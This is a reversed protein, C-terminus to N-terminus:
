EKSLSSIPHHLPEIDSVRRYRAEALGYIGFIILGVAALGLILGGHPRDRLTKLTTDLGRAKAPDHTWAASIVLLGTLAFVIGRAITGVRGLARIWRRLSRALSQSQFGRMFRCRFGDNISVVGAALIALGLVGILWRGGPHSMVYSAYDRQQTSQSERSGRMVSIATSALLAYIVGRALSQLRPKMARGEGTVGFISELLRWLAYSAFGFGLLLVVSKGFPQLLVQSLASKQDVEAHAGGAIMLALVGMLIYVVGRATLGARAIFSTM